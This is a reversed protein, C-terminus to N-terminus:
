DEWINRNYCLFFFMTFKFNVISKERIKENEVGATDRADVCYWDARLGHM